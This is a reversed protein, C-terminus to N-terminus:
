IHILSLDETAKEFPVFREGTEPDVVFRDDKAEQKPSLAQELLQRLQKNEERLTALVEFPIEHKGDKTKVTIDPTGGEEEAQGSGEKPEEEEGTGESGESQTEVVDEVTEKQAESETDEELVQREQDTLEM